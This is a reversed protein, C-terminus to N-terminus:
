KKLGLVVTPDYTSQFNSSVLHNAHNSINLVSLLSADSSYESFFSVALLLLSTCGEKDRM